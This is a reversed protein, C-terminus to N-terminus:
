NCVMKSFDKLQDRIAVTELGYEVLLLPFLDSLHLEGDQAPLCHCLIAYDVKRENCHPLFHKTHWETVIELNASNLSLIAANLLPTWFQSGLTSENLNKFMRSFALSCNAFLRSIFEFRAIAAWNLGIKAFHGPRILLHSSTRLGLQDVLDVAIGSNASAALFRRLLSKKQDNM